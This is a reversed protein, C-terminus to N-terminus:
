PASRGPFCGGQSVERPPLWRVGEWVESGQKLGESHYRVPFLFPPWLGCFWTNAICWALREPLACPLTTHTFSFLHFSLYHPSCLSKSKELLLVVQGGIFIYFSVLWYTVKQWFLVTHIHTHSFLYPPLFPRTWESMQSCLHVCACLRIFTCISNLQKGGFICIGLMVTRPVRIAKSMLQISESLMLSILRRAHGQCIM